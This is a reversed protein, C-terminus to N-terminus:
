SLKKYGWNDDITFKLNAFTPRGASHKESPNSEKKTGRLSVAAGSVCVFKADILM